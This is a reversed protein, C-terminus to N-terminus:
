TVFTCFIAKGAHKRMIKGTANATRANWFLGKGADDGDGVVGVARAAITRSLVGGAGVGSGAGIFPITGSVCEM